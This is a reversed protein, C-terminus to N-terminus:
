SSERFYSIAVQELIRVQFIGDVSSGSLSNDMPDRLTLHSLMCMCVRVYKQLKGVSFLIEQM